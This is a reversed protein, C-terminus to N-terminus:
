VKRFVGTLISNDGGHNGIMDHLQAALVEFRHRRFLAELSEITHFSVHENSGFNSGNPISILVKGDSKCIRRINGVFGDLDDPYIHELTHFSIVGDFMGDRLMPCDTTFDAVYYEVKSDMHLFSRYKQASTIARPCSDIGIVHEVDGDCAALLTSMGINCGVDCICGKFYPKFRHYVIANVHQWWYDITDQMRSEDGLVITDKHAYPIKTM